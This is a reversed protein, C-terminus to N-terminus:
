TKLLKVFQEQTLLGTQNGFTKKFDIEKKKLDVLLDNTVRNLKGEEDLKLTKDKYDDVERKRDEYEDEDSYAAQSEHKSHRSRKDYERDYDRDNKKTRSHRDYDRDDNKTRFHRDQHTGPAISETGKLEEEEFSFPLSEKPRYDFLNDLTKIDVRNKNSGCLYAKLITMKSRNNAIKFGFNDLHDELGDHIDKFFIDRDDKRINFIDHLDKHKNELEKNIDQIVDKAQNTESITLGTIKDKRPSHSGDNAHDDFRKNPSKSQRDQSKNVPRNIFNAKGDLVGAKKLFDEYSFRNDIRRIKQTDLELSLREKDGFKLEINLEELADMLQKDSILKSKDHKSAHEFAKIINRENINKMRTGVNRTISDIEKSKLNSKVQKRDDPSISSDHRDDRSKSRSDYDDDDYKSKQNLGSKPRSRSRSYYSQESDRSRISDRGRSRSKSYDNDQDKSRSRSYDRGRSRTDDRGRSSEDDRGRSREDSRGRSRTGDRGRSRTDDRGRSRTDDRGKSRTDDRGRSRTDDRSRDDETLHDKFRRSRNGEYDRNEERQGRGKGYDGHHKDEEEEFQRKKDSHSRKPQHRGKLRADSSEGFLSDLLQKCDYKGGKHKEFSALLDEM